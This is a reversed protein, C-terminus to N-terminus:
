GGGKMTLELHGNEPRSPDDDLRAIELRALEMRGKALEGRSTERWRQFREPVVREVGEVSMAAAVIRSLYVPQGFSFNDAHFFGLGDALRRASLATRLAAEVDARVYGPAVCVLLSLDIAVFQPADIEVDYGALRYRDLHARMRREFDADVTLGGHRDVTVFMTYWSGTWRRTAAATQVKPHRRAVEAYDEATVAREQRRFAQPADLRVQEIPEPAIGGTAALPNRVVEIDAPPPAGNPAADLKTLRDAGVNGSPGNGVRYAADFTQGPGPRRGHVGEGFRLRARGDDEMEVVFHHAFPGSDLLEAKAAWWEGESRLSIAPRTEARADALVAAAAVGTEIPPRAHTLGTRQLFPRFRRAPAPSGAPPPAPAELGREEITLGHEALVVNARAVAAPKGNPHRDLTLAFPLADEDHWRVEVLQVGPALPDTAPEAVADLRVAHRASDGSYPEGDASVGELVLVDGSVLNVATADAVLTARTAGQPLCCLPDAWTHIALANRAATLRAPHLTEFVVAGRGVAEVLPRPDSADTGKRLVVDEQYVRTDAALEADGGPEVELCIWARAAQGDHMRYDVLRAHRRVSPRLRATGLYAETAVADQYYSLQDGAYAMLEVLAVGLDIPNRERWDPAIQALRDLMLRRFSGYDKALYDIRPSPPEDEACCSKDRCDFPSPCDVKFSFGATSLIPDFGAPPEDSSLNALLRLTYTSFDGSSDTLVILIRERGTPPLADADGHSLDNQVAVETGRYANVVHAAVREGGTLEVNAETLTGVDALCHVALARKSPLVEVHDIANITAPAQNRLAQLRENDPCWLQTTSM